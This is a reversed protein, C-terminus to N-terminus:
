FRNSNETVGNTDLTFLSNDEDGIGNVLSYSLISNADPDTANFEGVITGIPQNEAIVLPDTSNLDFPASRLLPRTLSASVVENLRNGTPPRQLRKASRLYTEGDYWSGGKSFKQTGYLPGEPDVSELHYVSLFWDNTWEWVNGHM